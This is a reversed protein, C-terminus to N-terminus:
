ITGNTIRDMELADAEDTICVWLCNLEHHGKTPSDRAAGRGGKGDISQPNNDHSRGGQWTILQDTSQVSYDIYM